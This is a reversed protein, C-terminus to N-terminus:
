HNILLPKVSKEDEIIAIRIWELSAAKSTSTWRAEFKLSEKNHPQNSIRFSKPCAKRRLM